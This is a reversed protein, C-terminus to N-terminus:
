LHHLDSIETDVTRACTPCWWRTELESGCADHRVAADEGVVGAGWRALQRLAPELDRARSTPEYEFRTPRRQYPTAVVLGDTELQKLRQSLVNPAIDPVTQRLEGFRRAGGLLADLLMLTWRDGVLGAAVELSEAM